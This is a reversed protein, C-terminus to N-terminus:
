TMLHCYVIFYAMNCLQKSSFLDSASSMRVFFMIDVRMKNKLWRQVTLNMPEYDIIYNIHNSNAITQKCVGANDNINYNHRYDRAM